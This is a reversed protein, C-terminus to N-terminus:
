NIELEDLCFDCESAKLYDYLYYADNYKELAEELSDAECTFPLGLVNGCDLKSVREGELIRDVERWGIRSADGDMMHSDEEWKTIETITYKNM